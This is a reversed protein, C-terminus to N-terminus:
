ISIVGFAIAAIIMFLSSAVAWKLAFHQNQGYDIGIMGVLLYGAAYLPSLVHAPQGLVSARAIEAMPINYSAATEGIIPIIGYYYPDNAMFYTFPMSTIATILPLQTGLQDPIVQVLATAMADVMETGNMIGTFIGSAFVLAVVALVNGAHAAIREKQQVLNPYNIMAAIAFGLMFLVPLPLLGAILAILLGITLGANVWILKPRQLDTLSERSVAAAIQEEAAQLERIASDDMQRIGIRKREKIGFYWAALFAFLIGAAMVPILPLFVEETTLQLSSIVRATPGGWPTMNMVGISLLALTALMYLNMNLKKYLPLMATVTIIFTTTGDGDLAVLSALAVTGLAIKLPDGKVIRLITNVIPEFLGADIMIGFYLIAFVLMVGTPAVQKIGELMMDGIGTYFGGILAFIIPVIILALLASMRKTMILAMFVAVMCYGLLALM